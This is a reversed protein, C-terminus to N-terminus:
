ESDSIGAGWCIDAEAWPVGQIKRLNMTESTSTWKQKHKTLEANQVRQTSWKLDETEARGWKWSTMLSQRGGFLLCLFSGCCTCVVKAVIHCSYSRLRSSQLVTVLVRDLSLWIVLSHHGYQVVMFRNFFLWSWTLSLWKAFSDHRYSQTIVTDLVAAGRRVIPSVTVEANPM